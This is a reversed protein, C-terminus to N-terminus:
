KLFKLKYLTSEILTKIEDLINLLNTDEPKFLKQYKNKIDESLGTLYAIADEDTKLNIITENDEPVVILQSYKGQFDEILADALDVIEDYYENLAKHTAYSRTQFHFIHIQVASILLDVAFDGITNPDKSVDETKNEISTVLINNSEMNKIRPIRM